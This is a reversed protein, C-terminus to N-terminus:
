EHISVRFYPKQNGQLPIGLLCSGSFESGLNELSCSYGIVVSSNKYPSNPIFWSTQYKVDYIRTKKNYTLNSVVIKEFNGKFTSTKGRLQATAQEEFQRRMRFPASIKWLVVFLAVFLVSGAIISFKTRRKM